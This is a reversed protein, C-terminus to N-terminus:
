VVIKKIYHPKLYTQLNFYTLDEDKGVNLLKGLKKDPKIHRKNQEWQLGHEKIYTNVKKTVETRPLMSGKDVGLFLALDDTIKTPQTFGSPSKKGDRGTRKKKTKKELLKIEKSHIKHLNRMHSQVEKVQLLLNTIVDSLQNYQNEFELNPEDEVVVTSSETISSETISPEVSEVVPKPTEKISSSNEDNTKLNTKSKVNKKSSPM